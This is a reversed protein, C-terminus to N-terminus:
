RTASILMYLGFRDGFVRILWRPYIAFAVRSLLSRYRRSPKVTLLDGPGLVTSIRIKRFGIGSVLERAEGISYSKTGPSELQEFV